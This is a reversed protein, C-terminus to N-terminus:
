ESERVIQDDIGIPQSPWLHRQVDEGVPIGRARRYLVIWVDFVLRLLLHGLQARRNVLEALLLSLYHEQAEDLAQTVGLHCGQDAPAFTRSARQLM